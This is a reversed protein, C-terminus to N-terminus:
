AGGAGLHHVYVKKILEVKKKNNIVMYAPQLKPRHVLMLNVLYVRVLPQLKYTLCYFICSAQLLFNGQTLSSCQPLRHPVEHRDRANLRLRDMDDYNKKM